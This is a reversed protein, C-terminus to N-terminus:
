EPSQVSATPCKFKTDRLSTYIGKENNLLCLSDEAPDSAAAMLGSFCSPCHSAASATWSLPLSSAASGGEAQTRPAWVWLRHGATAQSGLGSHHDTTSVPDSGSDQWPCFEWAPGLHVTGKEVRRNCGGGAGGDGHVSEGGRTLWCM